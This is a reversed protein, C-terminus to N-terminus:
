HKICVIGKRSDLNPKSIEFSEFRSAQIWITFFLWGISRKYVRSSSIKVNLCCPSFCYFLSENVKKSRRSYYVLTQLGKSSQITNPSQLRSLIWPDYMRKFSLVWRTWENAKFGFVGSEITRCVIRLSDIGYIYKQIKMGFGLSKRQLKLESYYIM